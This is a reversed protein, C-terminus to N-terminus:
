LFILKSLVIMDEGLGQLGPAGIGNSKYVVYHVFLCLM